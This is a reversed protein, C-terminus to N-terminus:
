DHMYFYLRTRYRFQFNNKHTYFHLIKCVFNHRSQISSQIHHKSNQICKQPNQICNYYTIQICIKYPPQSESAEPYTATNGRSEPNPSPYTNAPTVIENSIMSFDAVVNSRKWRSGFKISKSSVEIVIKAGSGPPFINLTLVNSSKRFNKECLYLKDDGHGSTPDTLVLSGDTDFDSFLFGFKNSRLFNFCDIDNSRLIFVISREIRVSLPYDDLFHRGRCMRSRSREYLCLERIGDHCLQKKGVIDNWFVFNNRSNIIFTVLV